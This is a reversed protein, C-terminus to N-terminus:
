VTIEIQNGEFDLVCREMIGMGRLEPGGEVKRKM